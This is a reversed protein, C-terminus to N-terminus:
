SSSSALLISDGADPVDLPASKWYATIPRGWADFASSLAEPAHILVVVPIHEAMSKLAVLAVPSPDPVCAVVIRECGDEIRPEGAQRLLERSPDRLGHNSELRSVFAAELRAIDDWREYEELQERATTVVAEATLGHEALEDRLSQLLQATSLAWPFDRHVTLNPFLASFHEVEIQRLISTWVAITDIGSAVPGAPNLLGFPTRLVPASLDVGFLSCYVTLSERLRRGAQRTPVLVLTQRLDVATEPAQPILFDRVKDVVPADWGLFHRQVAM